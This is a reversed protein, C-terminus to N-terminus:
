HMVKVNVEMGVLRSALAPNDLKVRFQGTQSKTQILRGVWEVHGTLVGTFANSSVTARMGPAIRLLDGQFADCTVYMSSLDGLQIAPTSGLIEGVHQSVQLVVGNTPAAVQYTALKAQSLNYRKAASAVDAASDARVQANKRREVALAARSEDAAADVTALQHVSTANPGLGRYATADERARQARDAALKVSLAEDATAQGAHRRAEALAAAALNADVRAEKDDLVMLVDGRRVVQGVRARIAVIVAGPVGSVSIVGGQPEIAGTAGIDKQAETDAPGAIATLALAVAGAIAALSRLGAM